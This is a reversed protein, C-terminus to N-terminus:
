WKNQPMPPAPVAPMAEEQHESSFSNRASSMSDIDSAVCTSESRLSGAEFSTKSLTFKKLSAATLRKPSDLKATLPQMMSAINDQINMENIRQYKKQLMSSINGLSDDSNIMQQGDVEFVYQITKFAKLSAALTREEDCQKEEEFNTFSNM